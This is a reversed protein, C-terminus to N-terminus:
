SKIRFQVGCQPCSLPKKPSDSQFLAQAAYLCFGEPTGPGFHYTQKLQCGNSCHATDPKIFEVTWSATPPTQSSTPATPAKSPNDFHTPTIDSQTDLAQNVLEDSRKNQERYVHNIQWQDFHSLLTRAEQYLPKLDASKVRYEGTIQKVMLQSDSFIQIDTANLVRCQKLAHLLGQYEASNNTMPGLYYAAEHVLQDTQADHIVVGAAAPGPNGRAGGDIHVKLKKM